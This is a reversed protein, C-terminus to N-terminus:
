ARDARRRARPLRRRGRRDEHDSCRSFCDCVVHLSAPHAAHSLDLEARGTDRQAQCSGSDATNSEERVHQLSMAVVEEVSFVTGDAGHKFGLSKRDPLEIIDWPFGQEKLAAVQPARIDKGLLRHAWLYTEKPKRMALQVAGNGFHREGNDFAVVSPIKRKSQEDVVIHFPTGPKVSAVQV